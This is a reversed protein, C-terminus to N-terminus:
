WCTFVPNRGKVMELREVIVKRRNHEQDEAAAYGLDGDNEDQGSSLTGRRSRAQSFRRRDALGDLLHKADDMSHRVRGSNHRQKRSTPEQITSQSMSFGNISTLSLPGGIDGEGLAVKAGSSNQRSKNFPNQEVVDGASKSLDLLDYDNVSQSELAASIDMEEDNNTRGRRPPTEYRRRRAEVSPARLPTAVPIDVLDDWVCVRARRTLELPGHDPTKLTELVNWAQGKMVAIQRAFMRESFDVDKEFCQRLAIQTESWWSKSSLLPIFHQKTNESFPRGILTVPM